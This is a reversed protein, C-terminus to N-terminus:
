VVLLATTDEGPRLKGKKGWGPHSPIQPASVLYYISLVGAGPELQADKLLVRLTVARRTLAAGPAGCGGAGAGSGGGGCSRAGSVGAPREPDEAEVEDEDEDPAEEGAGGVPSLSEPATPLSLSCLPRAGETQGAVGGPGRYRGHGSRGAGCWSKRGPTHRPEAGMPPSRGLWQSGGTPPHPARGQLALPSVSARAQASSFPFRPSLGGPVNPFSFDSAM